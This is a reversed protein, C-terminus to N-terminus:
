RTGTSRDPNERDGCGGQEVRAIKRATRCNEYFFRRSGVVGAVVPGSALGIRLPVANGTSDKLESAADAM